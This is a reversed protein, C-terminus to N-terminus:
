DAMSLVHRGLPLLAFAPFSLFAFSMVSTCLDFGYGFSIGKLNRGVPVRYYALLAVIVFLLLAQIARLDRELEALTTAPSWVPNALANALVNLIVVTLMGLLFIRAM